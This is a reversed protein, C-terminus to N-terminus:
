NSEIDKIMTPAIVQQCYELHLRIFVNILLILMKKKDDGAPSYKFSRHHTRSWTSNSGKWAESRNWVKPSRM